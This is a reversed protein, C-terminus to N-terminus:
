LKLEKFKEPIRIATPGPVEFRINKLAARITIVHDLDKFIMENFFSRTSDM